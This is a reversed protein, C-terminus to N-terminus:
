SALQASKRERLLLAGRTERAKRALALETALAPARLVRSRVAAVELLREGLAQIAGCRQQQSGLVEGQM